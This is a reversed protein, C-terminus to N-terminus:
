REDDDDAPLGTPRRVWASHVIAPMPSDAGRVSRWIIENLEREPAMDAEALNM